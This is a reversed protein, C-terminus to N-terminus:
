GNEISDIFNKGAEIIDPSLQYRSAVLKQIQLIESVIIDKNSSAIVSINHRRQANLTLCSYQISTEELIQIYLYWDAATKLNKSSVIFYELKKKLLSTRFL